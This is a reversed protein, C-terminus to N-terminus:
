HLWWSVGLAFLVFMMQDDKPLKGSSSPWHLKENNVQTQQTTSSSRLAVTQSVTQPHVPIGPLISVCKLQIINNKGLANKRDVQLRLSISRSALGQNDPNTSISEGVM